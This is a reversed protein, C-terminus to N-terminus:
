VVRASRRADPSRVRGEHCFLAAGSHSERVNSWLREVAVGLVAGGIGRGFGLAIARLGQRQVIPQIIQAVVWFGGMTIAFPAFMRFLWSM